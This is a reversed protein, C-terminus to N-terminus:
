ATVEYHSLANRADYFPNVHKIPVDLPPPQGAPLTIRDANTMAVASGDTAQPLVFIMRRPMGDAFAASDSGFPDVRAMVTKADAFSKEGDAQGTCREWQIPVNFYRRNLRSM